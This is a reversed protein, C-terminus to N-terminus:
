VAKKKATRKAPTTKKAPARKPAPKKAPKKAPEAVVKEEKVEVPVAVVVPPEVKYPATEEVSQQKSVANDNIIDLPHKENSQPKKHNNANWAWFGLVALVIVALIIEMRSEGQL